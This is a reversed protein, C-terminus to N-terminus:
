FDIAQFVLLFWSRGGKGMRAVPLPQHRVAGAAGVHEGAAQRARSGIPTM